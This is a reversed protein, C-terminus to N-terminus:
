VDGGVKAIPATLVLPGGAVSAELDIAYRHLWCYCFGTTINPAAYVRGTYRGSTFRLYFPKGCCTKVSASAGCTLAHAKM